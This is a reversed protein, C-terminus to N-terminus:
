RQTINRDAVCAGHGLGVAARAAEERLAENKNNEVFDEGSPRSRCAGGGARENAVEAVGDSLLCLRGSAGRRGTRWRWRRGGCRSTAEVGVVEEDGEM